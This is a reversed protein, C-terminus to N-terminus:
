NREFAYRAANGARLRRLKRVTYVLAWFMTGLVAFGIFFRLVSAGFSPAAPQASAQRATAPMGAMAASTGAQQASASIAGGASAAGGQAWDSTAAASPAATGAAGAATGGANGGNAVTPYAVPQNSQSMARGLMFGIVGHMLGNNSQQVIVPPVQYMPPTQYVPAPQPRPQMLTDNLPPLPPTAANAARRADLTKLAHDQAANQEMDRSLASGSRPAPADPPPTVSASGAKGFAGPGSARSAAPARSVTPNSKQSSFGSKFSSSTGSHPTSRAQVPLNPGLAMLLILALVSPFSKM